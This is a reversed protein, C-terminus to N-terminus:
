GYAGVPYRAATGRWNGGTRTTATGPVWAAGVLVPGHRVTWLFVTLMLDLLLEILRRLVAILVTTIM